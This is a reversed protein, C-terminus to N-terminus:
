GSLADPLHEPRRACSNRASYREDGQARSCKWAASSLVHFCPTRGQTDVPRDIWATGLM